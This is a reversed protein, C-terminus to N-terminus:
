AVFSLHVSWTIFLHRIWRMFTLNRLYMSVALEIYKQKALIQHLVNNILM